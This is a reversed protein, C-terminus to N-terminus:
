LQQGARVTSKKQRPHKARIAQGARLIRVAHQLREHHDAYGGLGPGVLAWHSGTWRVDSHIANIGELHVVECDISGSSTYLSSVVGQVQGKEGIRIWEDLAVSPKPHLPHGGKPLLM